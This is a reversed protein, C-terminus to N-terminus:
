AAAEDIRTRALDVSEANLEIGICNRGHKNAVMGVTGSGLFPDLVVGGVPCGALICPEILAPPFTAYHAGSFAATPVNWVSRRNRLDVAGVAKMTGNTKGAGGKHARDSGVQDAVNQNLRAQTAAAVPEKIAEFDFYYRESKTMLFIYEHSKTCRDRISEPMPNPKAWIIDQRLWWGDEQLALAVRWPVGCLDKPKLVGGVTSFPKDRFTRDDNGAAKTDAASRGNISTAYSDGYNLWLTGNPKLVRRVERFLVVMAAVHEGVTPELGMQSDIRLAGCKRCSSADAGPRMGSSIAGPAKNDQVQGSHSHECDADGGEWRGTGYDRLGWYPPSTVVCDVLDSKMERLIALSDGHLIETATSVEEAWALLM